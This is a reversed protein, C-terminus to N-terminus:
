KNNKLVKQYNKDNLINNIKGKDLINDDNVYHNALELMRSDNMSQLSMSLNNIETNKQEEENDKIRNNNNLFEEDVVNSIKYQSPELIKKNQNISLNSNSIKQQFINKTKVGFSEKSSNQISFSNKSKKFSYNKNKSSINKKNINNYIKISNFSNNIKINSIDNNNYSKYHNIIENEKKICNDNSNENIIEEDNQRESLIKNLEISCNNKIIKNKNSNSYSNKKNSIKKKYKGDLYTKNNNYVNENFPILKKKNKKILVNDPSSIEKIYIDDPIENTEKGNFLKSTNRFNNNCKKDKPKKNHKENNIRDTIFQNSEDINMTCFSNHRRKLAKKSDINKDNLKIVGNSKNLKFNHKKRINSIINKKTRSNANIFDFIQKNLYDENYNNNNNQISNYNSSYNIPMQLSYSSKQIIPIQNISPFFNAYWFSPKSNNKRLVNPNIPTNENYNYIINNNLNDNNIYNDNNNVCIIPYIIGNPSSISYSPFFAKLSQTNQNMINSNNFIYSNNNNDYNHFVNYIDNHKNMKVQINGHSLTRKKKPFKLNNNIHINTNSIYSDKKSIDIYEFSNIKNLVNKNVKKFNSKQFINKMPIRETNAFIQKNCDNVPYSTLSDSNPNPRLQSYSNVYRNYITFNENQQSNKLNYPIYSLYNNNNNNGNLIYILDNSAIETVITYYKLFYYLKKRKLCRGYINKIKKM